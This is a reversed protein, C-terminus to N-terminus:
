DASEIKKGKTKKKRASDACLGDNETLIMKVDSSHSSSHTHSLSRPLSLFPSACQEEGRRGRREREGDGRCLQVSCLRAGNCRSSCIDDHLMSHLGCSCCRGPPSCASHSLSLSLACHPPPSRSATSAYRQSRHLLRISCHVRVCTM